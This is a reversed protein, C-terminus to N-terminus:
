IWIGQGYYNGGNQPTASLFFFVIPTKSWEELLSLPGPRTQIASSVTVIIVPIVVVFVDVLVVAFVNLWLLQKTRKFFVSIDILKKMEKLNEREM